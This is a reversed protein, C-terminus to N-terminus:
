GCWRVRRRPELDRDRPRAAPGLRRHLAPGPGRPLAAAYQIRSPDLRVLVPFDVLTEAQATNDIALRSPAPTWAPDFWGEAPLPAPPSVCSSSAPTCRARRSSRRCSSAAARWRRPAHRRAAGPLEPGTRRLLAPLVGLLAALAPAAGREPRRGRRRLRRRRGRALLCRRGALHDAPDARRRQGLRRGAGHGHRRASRHRHPDGPLDGAVPFTFSPSPERELHGRRRRGLRVRPHRGRSGLLRTRRLRRHASEVGTAGAPAIAATPALNEYLATFTERRPARRHLQALLHDRRRGVPRLEPAAAGPAGLDDAGLERGPPDAGPGLARHGRGRLQDQARDPRDRPHDRDEGPLPRRVPHRHRGRSSPRRHPLAPPARRRRPGRRHLQRREPLSRRLDPAAPLADYHVHQNHLTRLEWTLQDAPVPTPGSTASGAFPIVDGVRYTAGNAPALITALPPNNGVTIRVTESNSAFPATQETLTLVADYVGADPLRPEPERETSTAGDGFDWSYAFPQADPDYSATSDFGVRSRRSASRRRRRSSRRGAAHQRRGHLARPAARRGHERVEDLLPELGPRDVLQVPGATAGTGFPHVTAHGQADFTLYRIWRRNYDAIFLAGDYEPPYTGGTYFAGGNASAGGASHDYSFIPAKM